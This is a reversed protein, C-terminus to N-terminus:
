RENRSINLFFNKYELNKITFPKKDALVKALEPGPKEEGNALKNKYQVVCAILNLPM